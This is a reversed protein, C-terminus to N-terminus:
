SSYGYRGLGSTHASCRIADVHRAIGPSLGPHSARRFRYGVQDRVRCCVPTAAMPLQRRERNRAAAGRWFWSSEKGAFAGPLGRSERSFRVRREGGQSLPSEACRPRCHSGGRFDM